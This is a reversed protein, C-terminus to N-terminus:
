GFRNRWPFLHDVHIFKERSGFRVCHGVEALFIVGGLALRL